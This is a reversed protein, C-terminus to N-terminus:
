VAELERWTAVFSRGLYDVLELRYGRVCVNNITKFKQIGSRVVAMKGKLGPSDVANALAVRQGKEFKQKSMKEIEKQKEGRNALLYYAGM